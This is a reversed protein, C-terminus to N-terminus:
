FQVCHNELNWKMFRMEIQLLSLRYRISFSYCTFIKATDWFISHKVNKRVRVFIMKKFKNILFVYKNTMFYCRAWINVFRNKIVKCTNAALCFCNLLLVINKKIIISYYYIYQGICKQDVKGTFLIYISTHLYLHFTDLYM